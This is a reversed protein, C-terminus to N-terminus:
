GGPAGNKMSTALRNECNAREGDWTASITLRSDASKLAPQM